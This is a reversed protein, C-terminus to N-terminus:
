EPGLWGGLTSRRAPWRLGISWGLGVLGLSAWKREVRVVLGVSALPMSRCRPQYFGRSRSHGLLLRWM